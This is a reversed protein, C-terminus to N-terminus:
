EGEHNLKKDCIACHYEISKISFGLSEGFFTMSYIKANKKCNHHKMIFNDLLNMLSFKM